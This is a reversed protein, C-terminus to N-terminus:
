LVHRFELFLRREHGHEPHAAIFECGMKSLWRVHLTNRADVCNQLIAWREHLAAFWNRGEELMVRPHRCLRDTGLMWPVGLIPSSEIVGLIAEPVGDFLVTIALDAINIGYVLAERATLGSCAHVEARDAARLNRAVALAHALTAPRYTIIMSHRDRTDFRPPM